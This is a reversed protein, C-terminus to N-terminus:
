EISTNMYDKCRLPLERFKSMMHVSELSIEENISCLYPQWCNVNGM